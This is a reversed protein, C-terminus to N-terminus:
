RVCSMLSKPGAVVRRVLRLFWDWSGTNEKEDIVFALPVPQRDVDIGIIILMTGEYKGMLFTGDISLVDSCHKFAEV